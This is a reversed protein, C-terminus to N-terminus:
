RSTAPSRTSTTPPGSAPGAARAPRGRRRQAGRRLLRRAGQGVRGPLPQAGRRRGPARDRPRRDAAARGGPRRGAILPSSGARSRPAAARARPRGARHDGRRRARARGDAVQRAQDAGQGLHPRRRLVHRVAHRRQPRVPVSVYSRIRPMRAAPLKMAEPFDKVDPIVAPLKGDLIAQCFTTEQRQTAGEKFLFPVSSEVVELHQTTGDMRTLFAVSLGLSESPPSCCTPSRSAPMRVSSPWPVERPPRDAKRGSVQASSRTQQRATVGPPLTGSMRSASNVLHCGATGRQGHGCGRHEGDGAARAAGAPRPSRAGTVCWGAAGTRGRRGPWRRRLRWRACEGGAVPRVSRHGRGTRGPDRQGEVVPGVRHVGRLQEVQEALVADRRGEAQDAETGPVVRRQDAPDGGGAVGQAVVGPLVEHVEALPGQRVLLPVQGVGGVDDLRGCRVSGTRYKRAGPPLKM